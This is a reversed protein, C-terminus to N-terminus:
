SPPHLDIRVTLLETGMARVVAANLARLPHRRVLARQRAYPDDGPLLEATGPVWVFRRGARLRVRVDPCARINRVYDAHTGHEAVIWFVRGERGEGVPTTRIQGTVRGRTELLAYGPAAGLRLLLRVPPNVLYRQLPRVLAHKTEVRM